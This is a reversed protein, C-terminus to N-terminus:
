SSRHGSRQKDNKEGFYIVEFNGSGKKRTCHLNYLHRMLIELPRKNNATLTTPEGNEIYKLQYM